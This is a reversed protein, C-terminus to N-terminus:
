SFNFDENILTDISSGKNDGASNHKIKFDSVTINLDEVGQELLKLLREHMTHITSKKFLQIDYDISIELIGEYDWGFFWIPSQAMHFASNVIELERLANKNIPASLDQRSTGTNTNWSFGVDYLDGKQEHKEKLAHVILDYPYNQHRLDEFLYKKVKEVIELFTDNSSITVRIPLINVYFGIQDELSDMIRGSVPTGLVLDKQGTYRYLLTYIASFIIIYPSAKHNASLSRIRESLNIDLAMRVSSGQHNSKSSVESDFPLMIRPVGDKFRNTWYSRENALKGDSIIQNQWASYDKYQFRLPTLETNTHGLEANYFMVLENLTLEMSWGDTIIHHLSLQIVKVNDQLSLFLVRFLPANALNFPRAAHSHLHKQLVEGNTDAINIYEIELPYSQSPHIKQKPENEVMIFTTRLIEHREILQALANRFAQKDLDGTFQYSTDLNFLVDSGAMQHAVWLRKQAHSVDYFDKAGVLPIETLTGAPTNKKSLARSLAYITPYAFVNQLDIDLSTERRMRNVFMGINLSHAGLEMFNDHVGIQTINLIELWFDSIKQELDTKANDKEKRDENEILIELQELARRNIKNNSTLPFKDLRKFYSPIMYGPLKSQLYEKIEPVSLNAKSKIFAFLRPEQNEEKKLIVAAQVIDPFSQLQNEIEGLEVRFGRIKVQNDKRGIFEMNGDANVRGLDGTKYMKGGSNRNFPDPIFSKATKDSANVYGRAVGIGGIYLEGVVGKPVPNLFEDLIYFYNNNIPKGYPISVWNENVTEIPYYNSWVTGETAGGLSIIKARPFLTNIRGPLNVPIWDGSLFVLRLHQHVPPADNKRLEDVLYSLTSPVSNWFTIQHEHLLRQLEEVDTVEENQALVIAGGSALLGFIDYVSLDFCISTIFLLRDHSGVEFTNNVWEILNVAAHHEIMVGKPTGTSGSTHIIYALDKASKTLSLNEDALRKTPLEKLNIVQISPNLQSVVEYPSDVIVKQVNANNLIYRQRETPYVVDVPVYTCGAKLIGLVGAITDFTRNTIIGINDGNQVNNEILYHALKNAYVNLQAYTLQESDQILAINNPTLLVQEEFLQHLLMKSSYPTTTNNWDYIWQQREEDTLLDATTLPQSVSYAMQSLIRTYLTLAYEMDNDHFYSTAYKIKTRFQGFTKDIELDLLTNTMEAGDMIQKDNGLIQEDSYLATNEAWDEAVHFDTYNVICDFLPNRVSAQEGVIKAIDILHLDHEQMEVLQSNVEKILDLYTRNQSFNVRIPLSNLFCGLIKDADELSPRNHVVVGATVDNETSTISLLYTFAAVCISKFSVNQEHTITILKELVDTSLVEEIIRTGHITSSKKGSYNFPLKNREYNALLTKWYTKSRDTIQTGITYACYDKYTHKLPPLITQKQETFGAILQSLEAIFVEVSWGDLMAHHVSWIICYDSNGMDFVQFEWLLDGRFSLRKELNTNLHDKITNRQDDKSLGKLDILSIPPELSEIIVKLPETNEDVYYFTRLIDHRQVLAEVAKKFVPWNTIRVQYTFQDYYVPEKENLLSSYIMGSEITTLPYIDVLNEPLRSRKHKDELIKKKFQTIYAYGRKLRNATANNKNDTDRLLRSLEQITPYKFLDSVQIEGALSQNIKVVLKIAKMSDGGLAFYNDNIGIQKNNLIEAWIDVLAKETADVAGLFASGTELSPVELSLLQTRDIKGNITTPLKDILHFVSPIMHLPLHQELYRRLENTFLGSSTQLYAALVEKGGESPKSLVVADIISDHKRLYHEVEGTEIRYGRIKVQNDKRGIYVIEGNFLRVGLDGSFYVREGIQSQVAFRESNLEPRNFYGRSVGAGAVAIEGVVGIPSLMKYKDLIFVKMTPLPIGINSSGDGIEQESIEKYTVHVTTETIGFMNILKIDPYQQHWQQLFSPHLAEGGFIVYRLALDVPQSRAALAQVLNKFSSPTQNLVTIECISLLDIFRSPEQVTAKDAVVLKGGNLLAGFIEWVSFDFASSHFLSWTDSSSFNFPNQENFLLQVVNRHEVMVGKPVGTSGSTYIIYAKDEQANVPIINKAPLNLLENKVNHLNIIVTSKIEELKKVDTIALKVQADSLTNSIREVPNDPDIPVYAGGSKLIGLITIISWETRSMIHGIHDNPAISFNERLYFAIQNALDNVQQYTLRNGATILAVSHPTESVRNEFIRHITQSSLVKSREDNEYLLRNKDELSFVEVDEILELLKEKFNGLLYVYHNLFQSTLEKTVLTNNAKIKIETAEGSKYIFLKFIVENDFKECLTQVPSFFFGFDLAEDIDVNNNNLTEILDRNDFKSHLISQQFEQKATNFLASLTAGKNIEMYPFLLHESRCLSKNRNIDPTTFFFNNCSFYKNLLVAYLTAYIVYEGLEDGRSLRSIDKTINAKLSKALEYSHIIHAPNYISKADSHGSKHNFKRVWYDLCIKHDLDNMLLYISPHANYCIRKLSSLTGM